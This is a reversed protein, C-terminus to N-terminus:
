KKSMHGCAKKMEIKPMKSIITEKESVREVADFQKVGINSIRVVLAPLEERFLEQADVNLRYMQRSAIVLQTVNTHSPNKCVFKKFDKFKKDSSAMDRAEALQDESLGFDDVGNVVNEMEQESEEEELSSEQGEDDSMSMDEQESVVV